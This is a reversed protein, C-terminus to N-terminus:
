FNFFTQIWFKISIKTFFKFNKKFSIWKRIKIQLCRFFLQICSWGVLFDEASFRRIQTWLACCCQSCFRSSNNALFSLSTCPELPALHLSSVAKRVWPSKVCGGAVSSGSSTLPSFSSLQRTKLKKIKIWFWGVSFAQFQWSLQRSFQAQTGQIELRWNWSRIAIFYTTFNISLPQEHKWFFLDFYYQPWPFQRDSKGVIILFKQSELTVIGVNCCFDM